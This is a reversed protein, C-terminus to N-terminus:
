NLILGVERNIYCAVEIVAHNSLSRKLEFTNINIGCTSLHKVLPILATITSNFVAFAFASLVDQFHEINNSTYEMLEEATIVHGRDFDLYGVDDYLLSEYSYFTEAVASEVILNLYNSYVGSQVIDDVANYGDTNLSDQFQQLIKPVTIDYATQLIMNDSKLLPMNFIMIKSVEDSRNNFLWAKALDNM